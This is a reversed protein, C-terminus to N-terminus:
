VEQELLDFFTPQQQKFELSQLFRVAAQYYERKLDIGVAKRGMQLAVYPVTGLGAFPDLVVDGPNSWRQICRETLDLQLPCIHAEDARNTNALEANLVDLRNIDWWVWPSDTPIPRGNARGLLGQEDLGQLHAVHARYDYGNTEWPQLLRVGNSRWLSNADIQWRGLPYDESDCSTVPEDAYLNSTDTPPKRFLLVYEPMGVGMKSADKKLEGHTLRHTQKNERVPDTAVTIRGYCLWGYRTMARICDDSFPNIHFNGGSKSGYVIRDKAHVIAMRGPRTVRYLEPLLYRMQEFFQGDGDSNGLDNISDSYTYQDSFPWSSVSLGISNEPLGALVECSDGHIMLYNRGTTYDLVNISM